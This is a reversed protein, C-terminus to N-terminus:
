PQSPTILARPITTPGQATELELQLQLARRRPTPPTKPRPPASGNELAIRKARVRRFIDLELGEQDDGETFDDM